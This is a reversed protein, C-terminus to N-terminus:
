RRRLWSAALLSLLLAASTASVIAGKVFSQPRYEFRLTHRGTELPIGQFLGLAKQIPVEKEDVFARWGPAYRTTRIFTGASELSVEFRATDPTDTPLSEVRGHLSSALESLLRISAESPEPDSLASKWRSEELDPIGSVFARPLPDPVKWVRVLSDEYVLPWPLEGWERRSVVYGVALTRLRDAHREARRLREAGSAYSLHLPDLLAAIETPGASTDGDPSDLGWAAGMNVPLARRLDDWPIGSVDARDFLSFTRYSPDVTSAYPPPKNSHDDDSARTASAKAFWLLDLATILFVAIQWYKRRSPAANLLGAVLFGSLGLFALNTWAPLSFPSTAALLQSHVTQARWGAHKFREERTQADTLGLSALRKEEARLTIKQFKEQIPDNALRLVTGCLFWIGLLALITRRLLKRWDPSTQPGNALLREMGLAALSLLSFFVLGLARAPVRSVHLGPLHRLLWYLPGWKGLVFLLIFVLLVGHTRVLVNAKGRWLAYLALLAISTGAYFHLDWPGVQGGASSLWFKVKDSPGETGYFAPFIPLLLGWPPLSGYASDSFSIGGARETQSVVEVLPGIQIFALGLGLTLGGAVLAPQKWSEAFSKRKETFFWARLITYLGLYYASLIPMQAHGSLWQLGFVAALLGSYFFPNRNGLIKETILLEVPIWAAGAYTHIHTTQVTFYGGLAAALAGWLGSFRSAGLVRAYAFMGASALLSHFFLWFGDAHRGTLWILLLRFPHLIPPESQLVIPQGCFISDSWLPLHGAQIWRRYEEILPFFVLTDIGYAPISRVLWDFHIVFLFSGIMLFGLTLDKRSLDPRSGNM